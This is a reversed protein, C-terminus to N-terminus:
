IKRCEGQATQYWTAQRTVVCKLGKDCPYEFMGSSLIRGDKDQVRCAFNEKTRLSCYRKTTEHPNTVCRAVSKPKVAALVDDFYNDCDRDVSCTSVSDHLVLNSTLAEFDDDVMKQIKESKGWERCDAIEDEFNEYDAVQEFPTARSVFREIRIGDDRGIEGGVGLGLSLGAAKSFIKESTYTASLVCRRFLPRKDSSNLSKAGDFDVFMPMDKGERAVIFTTLSSKAEFKIDVKAEAKILLYKADFGVSMDWKRFNADIDGVEGQMWQPANDFAALDGGDDAASTRICSSIVVPTIIFLYNVLNPLRLM